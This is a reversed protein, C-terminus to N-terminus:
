YYMVQLSTSVTADSNKTAVLTYQNGRNVTTAAPFKSIDFTFPSTFEENAACASGTSSVCNITLTYDTLPISETKDLVLKYDSYQTLYEYNTVSTANQLTAKSLYIRSDQYYINNGHAVGRIADYKYTSKLALRPLTSTDAEVNISLTNSVTTDINSEATITITGGQTGKTYTCYHENFQVSTNNCNKITGVVGNGNLIGNVKMDVNSQSIGIFTRNIYIPYNRYRSYSDEYSSIDIDVLQDTKSLTFKFENLASIEAWTYKFPKTARTGDKFLIEITFKADFNDGVKIFDDVELYTTRVATTGHGGSAGATAETFKALLKISEIDSEDFPQNTDSNIVLTEKRTASIAFDTNWWSFHQVQGEACLGTPSGSCSVVTAVTENKWTGTNHDMSWFQVGDGPVLATGSVPDLASYLPMRIKVTSPSKLQLVNGSADRFVIDIMGSSVMLGAAGGPMTIDPTGPFADPNAIPNLPTFDISAVTVSNNNEDVFTAGTTDVQAGSGSTDVNLGAIAPSVTTGVPLLAITENLTASSTALTVVKVQDAHAAAVAKITYLTDSGTITIVADGTSNTTYTTSSNVATGTADFIKLNANAISTHSSSQEVHINLTRTTPTPTSSSSNGGGCATYVLPLLSLTLIKYFTKM